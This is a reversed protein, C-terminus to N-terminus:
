FMIPDHMGAPMIAMGAHEKARCFVKGFGAIEIPACYEDKLRVFFHSHRAPLSQLHTIQRNGQRHPIQWACCGRCAPLANRWAFRHWSRWRLVKESIVIDARPPCAASGCIPPSAIRTPASSTVLKCLMTARLSSGAWCATTETVSNMVSPFRLTNGPWATQFTIGTGEGVFGVKRNFGM